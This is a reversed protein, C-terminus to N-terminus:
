IIKAAYSYGVLDRPSVGQQHEQTLDVGGKSERTQAQTRM